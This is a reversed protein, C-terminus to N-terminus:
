LKLAGNFLEILPASNSKADVRVRIQGAGAASRLNYGALLREVTSDRRLPRNGQRPTTSFLKSTLQKIRQVDVDRPLSNPLNTTLICSPDAALMTSWVAPYHGNPSGHHPIKFVEAARYRGANNSVVAAWGMNAQGSDELDAGLLARAAGFEVWLAVALRNATTALPRREPSETDIFQSINTIAASVTASSPSLALVRVAPYDSTAAREFVPRDEIAWEPGITSPHSGPSRAKLIRLVEAFEEVETGLRPRDEESRFVFQLFERSQLANSCFFKASEAQKLLTSVGKFHDSHWHTIVIRRVRERVAVQLSNLYDLAAPNRSRPDLCSDM